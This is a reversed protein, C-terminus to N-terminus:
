RFAEEVDNEAMKRRVETFEYKHIQLLKATKKYFVAPLECVEREINSIFQPSVGLRKALETQSIGVSLRKSRILPGTGM